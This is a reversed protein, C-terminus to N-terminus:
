CKGRGEAVTPSGCYLRKCTVVRTRMVTWNCEHNDIYNALEVVLGLKGEPGAWVHEGNVSSPVEDTKGAVSPVEEKSAV